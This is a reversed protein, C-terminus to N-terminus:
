CSILSKLPKPGGEMSNTKVNLVYYNNADFFYVKDETAQFSTKTAPLNEYYNKLIYGPDTMIKNSDASYPGFKEGQFVIVGGPGMEFGGEPTISIDNALDAPYKDAPMYYQESTANWWYSFAKRGSFLTIAKRMTDSVAATIKGPSGPFRKDQYFKSVANAPANAVNRKRWGVNSNADFFYTVGDPGTVAAQFRPCAAGTPGGPPTPEPTPPAPTTPKPRPTAGERPGYINQINKIDPKSLVFPKIQGNEMPPPSYFPNMIAGPEDTHPLGIAHGIEHITVSLLDTHGRQVKDADEFAWAEDEDFHLYGGPPYSAHALVRGPGDFPYYCGLHDRNGFGFVMDAKSSPHVETFNIPIYKSWIDFSQYIARRVQGEDLQGTPHKFVWTVVDQEWRLVGSRTVKAKDSLGCRPATMKTKTQDDLQGTQPLHAFRQFDKIARTQMLQRQVPNNTRKSTDLYGFEALYKEADNQDPLEDAAFVLVLATFLFVACSITMM